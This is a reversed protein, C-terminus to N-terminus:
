GAVTNDLCGPWKSKTSARTPIWLKMSKKGTSSVEEQYTSLHVRYTVVGFLACASREMEFAFNLNDGDQGASPYDHVGFPDKYVAYMEARWKKPGIMDSFLGSDRWRECLEKLAATPKAPTDL